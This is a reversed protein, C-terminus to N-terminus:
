EMEGFVDDYQSYDAEGKAADAANRLIREVAPRVKLQRNKFQELLDTGSYGESILDALIQEAFEGGSLHSAPIIVLKGDQISCIAEKEFGM